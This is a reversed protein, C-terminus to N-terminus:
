NTWEQQFTVKRRPRTYPTADTESAPSILTPEEPTTQAM